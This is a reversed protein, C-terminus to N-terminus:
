GPSVGDTGPRLAVQCVPFRPPLRSQGAIGADSAIGRMTQMAMCDNNTMAPCRGYMAIVANTSRCHMAIRAVVLTVGVIMTECHGAIGAVGAIGTNGAIGSM